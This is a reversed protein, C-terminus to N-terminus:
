RKQYPCAKIIVVLVPDAATTIKESRQPQDAEEYSRKTTLLMIPVKTKQRLAINAMSLLLM